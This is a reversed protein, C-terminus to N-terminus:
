VLLAYGVSYTWSDALTHAIQVKFTRPLSGSNRVTLNGSGGGLAATDAGPRLEYAYLGTASILGSQLLITSGAGVPDVAIIQTTLGGSAGAITINLFVILGQANHNTQAATATTAARAASALLTGETNGRRRDSNTGNYLREGVALAFELSLGDTNAAQVSRNTGDSGQVVLGANVRAVGATEPTAGNLYAAATRIMDLTAGNYGLLTALVDITTPLALNDAALRKAPFLPAGNPGYLEVPFRNGAAVPQGDQTAIITM